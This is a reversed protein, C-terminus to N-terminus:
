PKVVVAAETTNLEPGGGRGGSGAAIFLVDNLRAIGSGHRGQQLPPWTAWQGNHINLAQVQNHAEKQTTSEGGIVLVADGLAFSMSGARPTPLHSDMPLTTWTGTIISYVDVEPITLNFVEKTAGSTKRGGVAYINDGVVAAQFHDRVRPADSLKSWTGTRLDLADLWAVNGDWHGNVIGCVTYLTNNHIVAGAGGRRREAPVTPGKSWTDSKPDYIPIHDLAKEKPYGGTMAGPLWIRGEWVVPQFHHIEMPPPSGVTWTKSAPDYIDVPQIRRGGLLYCKDNVAIFAAEHRAHPNGSTTIGTWSVPIPSKVIPENVTTGCSILAFIAITVCLAATIIKIFM